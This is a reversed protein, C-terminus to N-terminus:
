GRPNYSSTVVTRVFNQAKEVNYEEILMEYLQLEENGMARNQTDQNDRLARGAVYHELPLQCLSDIIVEQNVDVINAHKRVYYVKILADNPIGSIDGYHNFMIPLIDSYSIDTVIGFLSNYTINYNIGNKIIPYLRLVSNPQKDYIVAELKDGEVHAWDRRNLNNFEEMSYMKVPRDLYEVGVIKTSIPSLDLTNMLNHVVVITNEVFLTTKKAIEKVGEDLLKLLREDSYRRKDTDSLTYRAGQLIDKALM